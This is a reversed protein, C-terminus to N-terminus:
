KIITEKPAHNKKYFIEIELLFAPGNHEKEMDIM